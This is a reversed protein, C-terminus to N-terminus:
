NLLKDPFTSESGIIKVIFSKPSFKGLVSSIQLLQFIPSRLSKNLLSSHSKSTISLSFVKLTAGTFAFVGNVLSCISM